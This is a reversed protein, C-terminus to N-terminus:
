KEAGSVSRALQIQHRAYQVADGPEKAAGAAVHEDFVTPGLVTRLHEITATVNLVLPTPAYRTATGPLTAATELQDERDFFM